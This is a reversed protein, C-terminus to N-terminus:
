TNLAHPLCEQDLMCRVGAVRWGLALCALLLTGRCPKRSLRLIPEAAGYPIWSQRRWWRRPESASLSQRRRGQNALVVVTYPSDLVMYLRTSVGPGGGRGLVTRTSPQIFDLCRLHSVYFMGFADNGQPSFVRLLAHSSRKARLSCRSRPSRLRAALCVFFLKRV